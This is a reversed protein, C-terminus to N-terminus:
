TMDSEEYGWLSCCVMCGQGEGVGLIQGLELGILDTIDDLRRM